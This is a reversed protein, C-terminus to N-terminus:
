LSVDHEVDQSDKWKQNHRVTRMVWENPDTSLRYHRLMPDLRQLHLNKVTAPDNVSQWGAVAEYAPNEWPTALRASWDPIFQDCFQKAAAYSPKDQLTMFVRGACTLEQWEDDDMEDNRKAFDNEPNPSTIKVTAKTAARTIKADEVDLVLASTGVSRASFDTQNTNQEMPLRFM